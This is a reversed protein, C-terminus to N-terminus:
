LAVILSSLPTVAVNGIVDTPVLGDHCPGGHIYPYEPDPPSEAESAVLNALDFVKDRVRVAVGAALEVEVAAREEPKDNEM